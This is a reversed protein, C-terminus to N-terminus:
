PSSGSDGLDSSGITFRQDIGILAKRAVKAGSLDGNVYPKLEV